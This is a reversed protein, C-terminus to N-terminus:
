KSFYNPNGNPEDGGWTFGKDKFLKVALDNATLPEGTDVVVAMGQPQAMPLLGSATQIVINKSEYLQRFISVLDSAISRNCIVGGVRLAYGNIAYSYTLCRVLCLDNVAVNAGIGDPGAKEWISAPVETVLFCNDYGFKDIAEQDVESGINWNLLNNLREQKLQEAREKQGKADVLQDAIGYVLGEAIDEMPNSCSTFGFTLVGAVLINMFMLKAMNKKITMVRIM